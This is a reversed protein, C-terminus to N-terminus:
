ILMSKIIRQGADMNKCMSEINKIRGKSGGKQTLLFIFALIAVGM